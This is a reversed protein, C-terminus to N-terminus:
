IHAIEIEVFKQLIVFLRDAGPDFGDAGFFGEGCGVVGHDGHLM